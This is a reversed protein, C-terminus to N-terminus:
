SLRTAWSSARITRPSPELRRRIASSFSFQTVYAVAAAGTVQQRLRRPFWWRFFRRLPHVSHPSFVEYPDGVVEVGYPAGARARGLGALWDLVAPSPTDGRGSRGGPTGGAMNRRTKVYQLAGEYYLLPGPRRGGPRYLGATPVSAVPQARVLLRVEDYVDLYRTWFRHPLSGNQTCLVGDPTIAFRASATVLARM